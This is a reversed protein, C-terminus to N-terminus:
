GKRHKKVIKKGKKKSYDAKEHRDQNKRKPAPKEFLMNLSSVSRGEDEEDSVFVFDITRAGLDAKAVQVKVTDGLRYIKRSREGIYRMQKEDYVYYDDDMNTVSVMGEITNPLAIFLGWSTMGSIMGEYVEGIKDQMFEVKKLDDTAREADEATRERISCKKATDPLHKKYFERRNDQLGGDINEKIIRHIQLDPYRRIPSTFHCYYKAALGFHGLNIAMYKAQKMSRLVVRSIIHEEPKGEAKSLIQQIAKPHLESKGKVHYGFNSIFEDLAKIKEDDPTEHNRYVFPMDQWFYDEAITENCCLMFEEIISTAVNRDYPRIEVPKGNKDLIIKSEPFDFNVSGRKQRKELLINRLREMEEFLPVFFEYEKRVAENQDELIQKVATYTMRRDSHIVSNVIRHGIVIGNQDIEMICSLALRDEDPNLSCIGNSLKHPLMPIVRDVLYVSTGRQKAEEDLPSDETVYYSVDAIHVGLQFNGNSLRELSIADDLDKADEGDITVTLIARLDERGILEKEEVKTPFNEIQALVEEPFEEPLDFQRIISLIDVGPDDIHGLIETVKGEPSRREEPWKIIEIVVKHGTVAGKSNESAIFIDQAIKKDDPIVFGFDKVREFTGVIISKSRELIKIVAGEARREGIQPKMIKCLVRDRHMAGGTADAPIFIDRQDLEDQAVFGFGKGHGLFLGSIMNLKSAPMLKGKKTEVAKGTDILYNIIEEFEEKAESPVELLFSMEGRKLPVYNESEMLALIKEKREQLEERLEM